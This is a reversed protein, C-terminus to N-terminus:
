VGVLAAYDAASLGLKKRHRAVWAPSFRTSAGGDASSRAAPGKAAARRLRVIEREHEKVKRKLAAIDRRYQASASKLARMEARAGEPQRAAAENLM